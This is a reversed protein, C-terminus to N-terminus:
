KQNSVTTTGVWWFIAARSGFSFKLLRIKAILKDHAVVEPDLWM